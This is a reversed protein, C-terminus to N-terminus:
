KCGLRYQIHVHIIPLGNQVSELIMGDPANTIERNQGIWFSGGHIFVLVPLKDGPKTGKPRAINLHLCDESIETVETLLLPPVYLGYPQPCAPGYSSANVTSGAVPVHPRPPKFRNAGGTDEGFYVGLFLEIGNRELGLYKVNRIADLAVPQGTNAASFSNRAVMPMRPRPPSPLKQNGLRAAEMGCSGWIITVVLSTALKMIIM